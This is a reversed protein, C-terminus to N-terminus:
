RTAPSWGSLDAPTARIGEAISPLAVNVITTDLVAMFAGALVVALIQWDRRPPRGSHGHAAAPASDPGAGSLTQSHRFLM